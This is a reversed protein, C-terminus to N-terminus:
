SIKTFVLIVIWSTLANAILTTGNAQLLKIRIFNANKNVNRFLIPFNDDSNAIYTNSNVNGFFMRLLGLVQSSSNNFTSGALEMKGVSGFDCSLQTPSNGSFDVLVAINSSQFDFSVMYDGDEKDSFDYAWTYDNGVTNIAYVNTTSLLINFSM